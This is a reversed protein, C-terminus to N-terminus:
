SYITCTCQQVREKELKDIRENLRRLQTLVQGMENKETQVAPKCQKEVKDKREESELKRLYIKLKNGDRETEFKYTAQHRLEQYVKIYCEKFYLMM